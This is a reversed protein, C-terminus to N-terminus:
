AHAELFLCCVLYHRSLVHLDTSTCSYHHRPLPATPHPNTTRQLSFYNLQTTNVGLRLWLAWTTSRAAHTHAVLSLPRKKKHPQHWLLPTFEPYFAPSSAYISIGTNSQFLPAPHLRGGTLCHPCDTAVGSHPVASASRPCPAQCLLSSYRDAMVWIWSWFFIVSSYIMDLLAPFCM